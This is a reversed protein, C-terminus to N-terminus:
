TEKSFFSFFFFLTCLFFQICSLHVYLKLSSPVKERAKCCLVALVKPRDRAAQGERWGRRRGAVQSATGVEYDGVPCISDSDM